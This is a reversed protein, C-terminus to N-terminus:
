HFINIYKEISSVSGFIYMNKICQKDCYRKLSFHYLVNFNKLYKIELLM